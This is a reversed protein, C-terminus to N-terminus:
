RPNLALGSTQASLPLQLVRRNDDAAVTTKNGSVDYHTVTIGYRQLDFWRHGEQIFEARKFGLITNLLANKSNSTSYYTQAKAITVAHRTADYNVIRKSAFLNLDAM